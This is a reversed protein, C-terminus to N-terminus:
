HPPGFDGTSEFVTVREVPYREVLQHLASTGTFGCGVIAVHKVEHEM